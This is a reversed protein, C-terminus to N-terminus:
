GEGAQYPRHGREFDALVSQLVSPSIPKTFHLNIGARESTARDDDSGYGTVAVLLLKKGTPLQRLRRAVEWGDIGPLGIDLLAVDPVGEEEVARLAALGDHAVRTQHGFARVMREMMKAVDPNDEVLLVGLSM